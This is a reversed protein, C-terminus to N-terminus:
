LNTMREWEKTEEWRVRRLMTGLLNAYMHKGGYVSQAIAKKSVASFTRHEKLNCSLNRPSVNM